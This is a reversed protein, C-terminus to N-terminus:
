SEPGKTESEDILKRAEILHPYYQCCFVPTERDSKFSLSLEFRPCNATCWCELRYCFLRRRPQKSYEVTHQTIAVVRHNKEILIDNALERRHVRYIGSEDPDFTENNDERNKKNRIALALSNGAILLGSASFIISLYQIPNM